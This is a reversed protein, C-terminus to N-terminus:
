LVIKKEIEIKTQQEDDTSVQESLPHATQFDVLENILIKLKQVEQYLRANHPTQLFEAINFTSLDAPMTDDPATQGDM